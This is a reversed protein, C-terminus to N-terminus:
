RVGPYDGGTRAFGEGFICALAPTETQHSNGPRCHTYRITILRFRAVIHACNKGIRIKSQVGTPTHLSFVSDKGMENSRPGYITKWAAESIFSLENPAVRVTKGYKEHLELLKRSLRGHYQHWCWPLRTAGWSIPGPHKRLPHIYVNYALHLVLWM